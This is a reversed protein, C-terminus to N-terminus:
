GKFSIEIDPRLQRLKFVFSRDINSCSNMDLRVLCTGMDPKRILEDVFSETLQRAGNIFLCQLHKAGAVLKSAGADTVKYVFSIDLSRLQPASQALKIIGVDTVKYLGVASLIRLNNGCSAALRLVGSDGIKSCGDLILTDLLPLCEAAHSLADDNVQTCGTLDLSRLVGASARAMAVFAQESFRTATLNLYQLHKFAGAHKGLALLTSDTVASSKALSIRQLSQLAPTPMSAQKVFVLDLTASSVPCDRLTLTRLDSCGMMLKHVAGDNVAECADLELHQLSLCKEAIASISVQTIKFLGAIRLTRLTLRNNKAVAVIADDGIQKCFSLGVTTLRVCVKSMYVISESTLALAHSVEFGELLPCSQVLRVVPAFM